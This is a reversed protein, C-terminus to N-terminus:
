EAGQAAENEDSLVSRVHSSTKVDGIQQLCEFKYILFGFRNRWFTGSKMENECPQRADPFILFCLLKASPELATRASSVLFHSLFTIYELPCLTWTHSFRFLKNVRKRLIRFFTEIWNPILQPIKSSEESSM